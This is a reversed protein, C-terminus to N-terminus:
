LDDGGADGDEGGGEAEEGDGGAELEDVMEDFDDGVDEGLEQGMKRMWRAMSKPDNEDVGGLADPDGLADLREEESRPMAFRSMLRTLQRSGCRECQPTVAESVRLTLVTVKKGCGGCRYEYIPM